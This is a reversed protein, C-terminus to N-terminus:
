QAFKYDERVPSFVDVVKADTSGSVTVSHEVNSPITFVGGPEVTTTEDAVTFELTGSVVYGAQEEPHSHPPVVSGAKMEVLSIM